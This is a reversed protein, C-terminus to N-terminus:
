FVHFHKSNKLVFYSFFGIANRQTYIRSASKDKFCYSRSYDNLSTKFIFHQQHKIFKRKLPAGASPSPIPRSPFPSGPNGPAGPNWTCVESFTEIMRWRERHTEKWRKKERREREEEGQIKRVRKFINKVNMNKRNIYKM